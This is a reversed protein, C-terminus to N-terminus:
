KIKEDFLDSMARDLRDREKKENIAEIVWFIIDEIQPKIDSEYDTFNSMPSNLLKPTEINLKISDINIDNSDHEDFEKKLIISTIKDPEESDGYWPKVKVM